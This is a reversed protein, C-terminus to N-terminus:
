AYSYTCASVEARRSCTSMGEVAEYDEDVVFGYETYLKVQADLDRCTQYVAFQSIFTSQSM